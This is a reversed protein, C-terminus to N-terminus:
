PNHGQAQRRQPDAVKFSVVKPLPMMASVMFPTQPAQLQSFTVLGITLRCRPSSRVKVVIIVPFSPLIPTILAVWLTFRRSIDRGVMVWSLCFDVYQGIILWNVFLNQEAVGEM